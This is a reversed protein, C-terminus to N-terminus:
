IVLQILSFVSVCTDVDDCSVQNWDAPGYDDNGDIGGRTQDFNFMDVNNAHAVVALLLSALIAQQQFHKM